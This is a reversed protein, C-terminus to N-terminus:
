FTPWSCFDLKFQSSLGELNRQADEEFQQIQKTTPVYDSKNDPLFRIESYPKSGGTGVGLDLNFRETHRIVFYGIEQSLYPLRSLIPLNRYVTYNCLHHTLCFFVIKVTNSPCSKRLYFYQFLSQITCISIM